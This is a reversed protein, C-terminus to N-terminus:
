FPTIISQSKAPKSVEKLIQSPMAPLLSGQEEPKQLEPADSTDRKYYMKSGLKAEQFLQWPSPCLVQATDCTLAAPV